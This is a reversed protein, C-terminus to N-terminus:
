NDSKITTNLPVQAENNEDNLDIDNKMRTINIQNIHLSRPGITSLIVPLLILGHWIGFLVVMFFIKFFTRFVYADSFALLSQALLTSGAGYLVAAGIHEMAILTRAHRNNDNNSTHSNLFAHAVHAAYDIGLGAALELGICSVIDVSLGWYYMFGCIDILTLTICLLIWMCTQPEAILVATTAMVCILALIINRTVEHAIVKDTAWAAFVRSWVTAYCSLGTEIVAHKSNDMAPIWEDPKNFSKFAFNISSLLIKPANKGCTLNGDFAFNGQYKGGSQSFLFKSLYFHFEDNTVTDNKIIDKNYNGRIFNAFEQPWIEIHDITPMNIFKETLAIIKSFEALYNAEGIYIAAPYGRNPYKENHILQFNSLYSGKPLFWNPDFWQELQCTGMISIVTLIMTILVIIIKGPTTLIINSYVWRMANRFKKQRENIKNPEYNDHKICPFMGNRKNEMRKVDLTFFAVFFTVQLLFTVLVGVAAYICFSELSPLITSSGIIFAVVDTLSTISIAAGAHSLMQAIREDISKVRNLENSQVEKWSATIIFIDDVGLSMLMFPLSSHVPGYPVGFLSCIGIAVIFAGGVCMLGACTLCFRWEVWNFKSLILLVYITMLVTGIIIKKIDQFMTSSSIDGFSRGAEYWIALSQNYLKNSIKLLESSTHLVDLLASEWRLVEITAWDNTGIDNGAANMNVKTFDVHLMWQTKVAKAAIIRGMYDTTVDGLLDTFNIPHGLTPSINITNIKTLIDKRTQNLIIDSNYEWLDLISFIVCGDPLNSIIDCYLETPAHVSPEFKSKNKRSEPEQDFFEDENIDRKQRLNRNSYGSIIPIKFCVDTWGLKPESNTQADITLKTIENLQYLAYPQFINDATFIMTEIRQGDKFKSMLWETDKVFDSDPPVWLKLPNKEQHFRYLGGLCLLVVISIGIIWKIPRQSINLGLRYFFHEVVLSINEPLRQLLDCVSRREVVPREDEM